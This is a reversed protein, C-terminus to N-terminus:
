NVLKINNIDYQVNNNKYLMSNMTVEYLQTSSDEYYPKTRVQYICEYPTSNKYKVDILSADLFKGKTISSLISTDLNSAELKDENIFTSLSFLAEKGLGINNEYTILENNNNFTYYTFKNETNLNGLMVVPKNDLESSAFVDYRGSILTKISNNDKVYSFVHLLPGKDDSSQIIIEQSGDNDIDKCDIYMPWSNNNYGLVKLSPDPKLAFGDGNKTKVNVNYSNDNNTSIYLTDIEKDGNIDGYVTQVPSTEKITEKSKFTFLLIFLLFLIFLISIFFIIIQKKKLVYVKLKM